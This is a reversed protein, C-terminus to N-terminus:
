SHSVSVLLFALYHGSHSRSHPFHVSHGSPPPVQQSIPRTPPCSLWPLHTAFSSLCFSSSSGLPLQSLLLPVLMHLPGPALSNKTNLTCLPHHAPRARGLVLGPPPSLKLGGGGGWQETGKEGGVGEWMAPDQGRRMECARGSSGVGKWRGGGRAPASSSSFCLKRVLSGSGARLGPALGGSHPSCACGALATPTLHGERTWRSSSRVRETGLAGRSVWAVLVPTPHDLLYSFPYVYGVNFTFFRCM